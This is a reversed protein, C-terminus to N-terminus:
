DLPEFAPIRNRVGQQLAFRVRMGIAPERGGLNVLLTALRPGEVGDIEVLASVYPTVSQDGDPMLSRRVTTHTFVTGTTPVTKWELVADSHCKVYAYPYWQWRGCVSCAPLRLEGEDLASWFPRLLPSDFRPPCDPLHPTTM